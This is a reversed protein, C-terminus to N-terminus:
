LHIARLQSEKVWADKEKWRVKVWVDKRGEIRLQHGEGIIAVVSSASSPDSMLYTAAHDVIGLTDKKSFNVHLFLVVLVLVLGIASFFPKERAKVKLYFMVAILLVAAATLMLAVTLYNEKLWSFIRTSETTEYGSLNNKKALEEMKKLAQQDDSALIYLNLYFLSEGLHNLGEQIHAMKLLMASSYLGSEYLSKYIEFAQTYQKAAYLSDASSLSPPPTTQACSLFSIFGSLIIILLIAPRKQM